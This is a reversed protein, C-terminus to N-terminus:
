KGVNNYKFFKKKFKGATKHKNTYNKQNGETKKKKLNKLYNGVTSFKLSTPILSFDFNTLNKFFNPM